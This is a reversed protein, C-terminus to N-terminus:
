DKSGFLELLLAAGLLGVGYMNDSTATANWLYWMGYGLAGFTMLRIM